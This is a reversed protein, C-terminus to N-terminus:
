IQAGLGRLETAFAGYQEPQLQTITQINYRAMIALCENMKGSQALLAGARALQEMTYTPAATPPNAAVTAGTPIIATQAPPTPATVAVPVAQVAPPTQPVAASTNSIPINQQLTETPQTQPAAPAQGAAPTNALNKLSTFLEEPTNGNITLAYM